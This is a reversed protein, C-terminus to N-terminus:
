INASQNRLHSRGLRAELSHLYNSSSYAIGDATRHYQANLPETTNRIAEFVDLQDMIRLGNAMLGISAGVDHVIEAGRELLLYDIGAKEFCNALTLGAVSGGVIIVRLQSTSSMIDHDRFYAILAAGNVLQTSSINCM